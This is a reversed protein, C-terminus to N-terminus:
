NNQWKLYVENVLKVEEENNKKWLQRDRSIKVLHQEINNLNILVGFDEPIENSEDYYMKGIILNGVSENYHSSDTYYTMTDELPETTITNYGSFDWVPTINVLERKWQEFTHWHETQAISEWQTAHSPSIFIKLEINNDKCLKVVEQFSKLHDESLQYQNHNQYYVRISNEFRWRNNGDGANRNPMFGNNAEDNVTKTTKLSARITEWSGELADLSFLTNIMDQPILYRTELRKEEFSPQNDLFKNFMFFDVGFIVTKMNPQNAIAHELYRKVEYMNPGNIGLNYVSNNQELKVNSPNIGQKIRSSGIMVVDPKINIIEIAKFLRDNNDKRPKEHNFNSLLDHNFIGYPNILYNFSGVSIMSFSLFTFFLWIFRISSDNTVKKHQM